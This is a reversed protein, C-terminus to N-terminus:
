DTLFAKSVKVIEGKESYFVLILIGHYQLENRQLSNTNKEFVQRGMLDFARVKVYKVDTQESDRYSYRDDGGGNQLENYEECTPDDGNCDVLKVRKRQTFQSGATPSYLEITIYQPYYPYKPFEILTLCTCGDQTNGQMGCESTYETSKRGIIRWRYHLGPAGQACFQANNSEECVQIPGSMTFNCSVVGNVAYGTPVCIAEWARAVAFFENSCRGFQDEVITMTAEMLDPIDSNNDILNLSEILINLASLTGLAPIERTADGQSVLFYWHGLPQGRVYWDSNNQVNQFCNNTTTQLNRNIRPDNAVEPEDDGMSWDIGNNNPVLSEIYTGFIDAMAEHLTRNGLNIYPIFEFMFAHGLEHAVVDFLGLPRNNLTGITIFAEDTNSGTLCFAGEEDCSGINVTNFDIDIDEYLPVVQSTVWFTQYAGSTSENTWENTNNTSPVETIPWSAPQINTPCDNDFDYLIISGDPSELTTTTGVTRDTLFVPGYTITPANHGARSDITRIVAGTHADVWSIKPYDKYYEVQWVLRYECQNTLNHIILLKSNDENQIELITSLSTSPVTPNHNLSIETLIHPTIMYAVACPDTPGGPGIYATTYGGGDVEVGNYYQQYKRFFKTSDLRSKTEKALQFTTGTTVGLKQFLIEMSDAKEPNLLLTGNERVASVLPKVQEIQSSKAFANYNSCDSAPQYNNEQAALTSAFYIFLLTILIPNKM